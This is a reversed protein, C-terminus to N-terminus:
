LCRLQLKQRKLNLHWPRQPMTRLNLRTVSISEKWIVNIYLADGPFIDDASGPLYDSWVDYEGTWAPGTADDLLALAAIECDAATRALPEKPHRVAGHLGDDIGRQQAAISAPNTVRAIAHGLSRYHVEVIMTTPLTQASVVLAVLLLFLWGVPRRADFM